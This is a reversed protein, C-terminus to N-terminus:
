LQCWRQFSLGTIIRTTNHAKGTVEKVEKRQQAMQDESPKRKSQDMININMLYPESAEHM